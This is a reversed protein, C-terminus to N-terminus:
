KRELLLAADFGGLGAAVLLVREIPMHRAATLVPLIPTKVGVMPPAIGRRMCVLAVAVDVGGAAGLCHGVAGKTGTVPVGLPALVRAEAADGLRTGTAHAFILDPGAM